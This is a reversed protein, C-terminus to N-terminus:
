FTPFDEPRRQPWWQYAFGSLAMYMEKAKASMRGAMCCWQMEGLGYVRWGNEPDSATVSVEDHLAEFFQAQEYEDMAWFAKAILGPTLDITETTKSEITIM